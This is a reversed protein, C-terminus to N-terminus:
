EGERLSDFYEKAFDRQSRPLRQGTLPDSNEHKASDMQEQIQARVKGKLNPGDAEGTIIAAGHGTKQAVKSDYFKM